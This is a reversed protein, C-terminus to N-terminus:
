LKTKKYWNAGIFNSDSFTKVLVSGDLQDYEFSIKNEYLAQQANLTATLQHPEILISFMISSTLHNRIRLDKYGFAVTADAGLPAFREAEQYIDLSHPHREIIQLGAKISLLYIIGSLQCLGGGTEAELKGNIISRSKAFGNVSSPKGILKWFSFVQGPCIVVQHIKAAGLRLNNLKNELTASHKIPQTEKLCFPFDYAGPRPPISAFQYGSQLDNKSRRWLKWQLRLAPPVLIRLINRVGMNFLVHTVCLLAVAM